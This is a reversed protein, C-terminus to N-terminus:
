QQWPTTGFPEYGFGDTGELYLHELETGWKRLVDGTEEPHLHFIGQNEVEIHLDKLNTLNRLLNKM